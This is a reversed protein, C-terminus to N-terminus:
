YHSPRYDVENFMKVFCCGQLDLGFDPDPTGKRGTYTEFSDTDKLFRSVEATDTFGIDGMLGKATDFTRHPPLAVFNTGTASNLDAPPRLFWLVSPDHTGSITYNVSHNMKVFLAHKLRDGVCSAGGECDDDMDCAELPDSGECFWPGSLPFDPNPTGKRGTYTEFSDSAELFRSIEATDGPSGQSDIDKILDSATGLCGKPKVPSVFVNTGTASVAQATADIEDGAARLGVTIKFAMNSAMLVGATLVATVTVVFVVRAVHTNM